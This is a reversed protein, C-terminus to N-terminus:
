VSSDPLDYPATTEDKEPLTNSTNAASSRSRYSIKVMLNMYVTFAVSYLTFIITFVWCLYYSYNYSTKMPHQASVYYLKNSSWYHTYVSLGVLLFFGTLIYLFEVMILLGRPGFILVQKKAVVLGQCIIAFVLALISLVLMAQLTTIGENQVVKIAMNNKEDVDYLDFAGVTFHLKKNQYEVSINLWGSTATVFIDFILSVVGVLCSIYCLHEFEM